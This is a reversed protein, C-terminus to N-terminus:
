VEGFLNALARTLRGAGCGIELVRMARPDKGQCINGMDTLIDDAISQEGSAFFDQDTWDTKGTAIYYRANERARADWDSRMKALQEERTIKKRTRGKFM